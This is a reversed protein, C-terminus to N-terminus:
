CQSLLLIQRQQCWALHYINTNLQPKFRQIFLLLTAFTFLM